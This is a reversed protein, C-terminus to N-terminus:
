EEVCNEHFWKEILGSVTTGHQAAYVKLGVKISTPLSINMTVRSDSSSEIGVSKKISAQEAGRKQASLAFINEDSKSM